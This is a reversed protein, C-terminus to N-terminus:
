PKPISYINDLPCLFDSVIKFCKYEDPLQYEAKTQNNLLFGIINGKSEVIIRDLIKETQETM